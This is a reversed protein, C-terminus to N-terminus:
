PKVTINVSTDKMGPASFTVQISGSDGTAVVYALIRGRYAPVTNGNFGDMYRPNCNELKLLKGPGTVTCTVPQDADLVRTGNIKISIFKVASFLLHFILM